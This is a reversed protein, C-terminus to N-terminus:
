EIDIDAFAVCVDTGLSSIIFEFAGPGGVGTVNALKGFIKDCIVPLLCISWFSILGCFASCVILLASSIDDLCCCEDALTPTPQM